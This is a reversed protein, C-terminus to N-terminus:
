SLESSRLVKLFRVASPTNLFISSSISSCSLVSVARILSTGRGFRATVAPMSPSPLLPLKPIPPLKLQSLRLRNLPPSSRLSDM